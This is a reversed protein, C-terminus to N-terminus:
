WRNEKRRIKIEKEIQKKSKGPLHDIFVKGNLHDLEHQMARALLDEGEITVPKLNEDLCEVTVKKYRKVKAALGPLSLCGEENECKGGTKLVIKPNIFVLPTKKGDPMVDIIFLSLAKGVQHAALGLGAVSYMTEFMDKILKKIEPTVKEVPKAQQRLVSEGYKKIPLVSM